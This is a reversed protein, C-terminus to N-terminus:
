CQIFSFKCEGLEPHRRDEQLSVNKNPHDEEYIKHVGCQVSYMFFITTKTKSITLPLFSAGRTPNFKDYHFRLKDFQKIVLGSESLEMRDTQFEIDTAIQSLVSVIEDANTIEYRRSRITPRIDEDTKKSKFTGYAEMM